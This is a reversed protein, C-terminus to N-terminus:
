LGIEPSSRAAAEGLIRRYIQRDEITNILEYDRDLTMELLKQAGKTRLFWVNGEKKVLFEPNLALIKALESVSDAGPDGACFPILYEKGINSPHTACKSLIDADLFWYGIHDTMLYIRDGRAIEQELYKATEYAVGHKISEGGALRTSIERYYSVTLFYYAVCFLLALVLLNRKNWLWKKCLLPELLISVM